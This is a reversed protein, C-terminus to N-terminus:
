SKSNLLFDIIAMQVWMRNEAEQIVVSQESDLVEDSAVVNRRIPLCHMFIANNTLNMKKQNVMWNLFIKRYDSEAEWDGFYKLSAWSKAIVVDAGRFASMQNDTISFKGAKGKALNMVSEELEFGPPCVLTVDAGFIAPTLLQSHPTALPLAKPHPAWTLVIKKGELSGFHEQMTMVDAMSQCPHFMNSEMNIVPKNSYKALEHIPQDNKLEEWTQQTQQTRSKKTMLDSKRLAILDTYSSIVQAAEKIYEQTKGDMVVGKKYEFEWADTASLVNVQGGMKKMGSEFSLRTRLSPNAFILTLIKGSCNSIEQGTKYVIAKDIISQLQFKTYDGTTIFHKSM